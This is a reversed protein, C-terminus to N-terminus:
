VDCSVIDDVDMSRKKSRQNSSLYTSSTLVPAIDFDYRVVKQQLPIYRTLVQLVQKMSPRTSPLSSTCHIGLQFVVSMEALYCPEKIQEDLADVIPKGDKLHQWAWEALSTNDGGDNAERGTVLELLVVGFSYIDVKENVKTTYGYEPALYGYSGAVASISEPVGRKILMRALGFDAIRANFDSDLLINSSKVDRHIIAPCCDQHMYCLGQAAGITIHLRRPWDLVADQGSDSPLLLGRKKRHLWRDLSQNEMFEYVLLRSKESCFYCMLKVINSHRITGLIQVEALFEKELKEDLKENNWIKKVAVVGGLQNYPVRYVKGSGGDGILNRHTLNSLIRSEAFPLSQFATLKWKARDQEHRRRRFNRVFLFASLLTVLFLLGSSTLIIALLRPSLKLSEQPESICVRLNLLANDACLGPNILFSNKYAMNEFEDPIKGMFQNSSLNLFTLRLRGIESPINGSLQNESLDLDILDPLLGIAGPIQGSLQNRSLNLSTLSKWSVINSPIEGSLRNQALSLTTLYPLTTLKSPIKGSFQNNSAKLVVLNVSFAIDSPIEGSFRNNDIKLQTLSRSLKSPLKGSFSNDSIMLYTLNVASWLNTPFKGSFGNNSLQVSTLSSCNGLTARVDGGLNNSFVVVGTLVGGACLHDPLKGTLRNNSIEINELKMNLGLEPPLVGTFSNNFLRINKLAPLRGISAPIDGSLQNDTMLLVTLNNLKGFDEPITGTLNNSSLDIAKLSLSEIRRPIEGSFKNDYLFLNELKNLLFISNPISGCLNNFGLDLHRLEMINGISEPLEGILNTKTMWLYTLKKLQGFEDPFKSPIFNNHAMELSELNSLNVITPTFTGNFLNMFLRLTKLDSLLGIADPIDGTFNNAGLNLHNLRSLHHIDGPIRGVFYNQSLDLYALKSCNYLFTPFGGTVYNYALDLHNLNNLNCIVPPIKRTINWNYFSIATISGGNNCTIGTWKCFPLSSNWSDMPPQSQWDQKLKLLISQEDNITQSNAQLQLSFFFLLTCLFLSIGVSTLPIASM